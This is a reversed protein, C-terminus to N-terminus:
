VCVVGRVVPQYCVCVAGSVVPQYCVGVVSWLSTVCVCVVGSVGPKSSIFVVRFYICLQCM